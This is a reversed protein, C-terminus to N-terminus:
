SIAARRAGRAHLAALAAAAIPSGLILAAAIARLGNAYSALQAPSLKKPVPAPALARQAAFAIALDVVLIAGVVAAVRALDRRAIAASDLLPAPIGRETSATTLAFLVLLAAGPVVLALGGIAIAAVAALWPLAGRVLQVAGDRLARLQALPRGAELARALPAAAGVLALQGIWATAALMWGLRLVARAGAPDSPPAVRLAVLWWPALAVASLATLPVLYRLYTRLALRM